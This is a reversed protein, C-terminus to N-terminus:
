QHRVEVHLVEVSRPHVRAISQAGLVVTRLTWAPGPLLADQKALLVSLSGERLESQVRDGLSEQLVMLAAQAVASVGACVIDKGSPGFDAHGEVTYGVVTGQSQLVRVRIM